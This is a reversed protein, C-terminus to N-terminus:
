SSSDDDYKYKSSVTVVMMKAINTAVTVVMMMYIYKCSVAVVMMM